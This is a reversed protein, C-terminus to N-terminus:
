GIPLRVVVFARDSSLDIRVTRDVLTRAVDELAEGPLLGILKEPLARADVPAPAAARGPSDVAEDLRADMARRALAPSKEPSVAAAPLPALLAALLALRLGGKGPM